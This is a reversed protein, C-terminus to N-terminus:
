TNDGPNALGKQQSTNITCVPPPRYVTRCAVTALEGFTSGAFSHKQIDIGRM